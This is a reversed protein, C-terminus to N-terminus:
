IYGTHQFVKYSIFLPAMAYIYTLCVHEQMPESHYISNYSSLFANNEKISKAGGAAEIEDADLWAYSSKNTPFRVDLSTSARSSSNGAVLALVPLLSKESSLAPDRPWCRLDYTEASSKTRHNVKIYYWLKLCDALITRYCGLTIGANLCQLDYMDHM